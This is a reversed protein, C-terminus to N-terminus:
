KEGTKEVQIKIGGVLYSVLNIFLASCAGFLGFGALGSLGGFFAYIIGGLLNGRTEQFFSPLIKVIGAFYNTAGIFAGLITGLLLGMAGFFVLFSLLDLSRFIFDFGKKEVAERSMDDTRERNRDQSPMAEDKEELSGGCRACVEVKLENEFGCYICIAKGETISPPESQVWGKGDFFYWKGSKAGIMWFRGEDDRLKLKELQDIFEQRTINGLRFKKKLQDFENEVDEFRKHM